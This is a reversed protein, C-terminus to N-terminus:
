DTYLINLKNAKRLATLERAKVPDRMDEVYDSRKIDRIGAAKKEHSAKAAGRIVTSDVTPKAEKLRAAELERQLRVNDNKLAEFRDGGRMFQRAIAPSRIGQAQMFSQVEAREERDIEFMELRYLTREEAELAIEVAGVIAKANENGADAAANMRALYQRREEVKSRAATTAPDTNDTTTGRSGAGSKLAENEAKLANFGEAKTKWVALEGRSITVKDEGAESGDGDGGPTGGNEADDQGPDPTGAEPDREEPM